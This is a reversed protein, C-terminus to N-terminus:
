SRPIGNAKIPRHVRVGQIEEQRRHAVPETRGQALRRRGLPLAPRGDGGATVGEDQRRGAGALGQGGEEGAEIGQPALPQIPRQRATHLHQVDRGQLGEVVVDVAVQLDGERADGGGGATQFLRQGVEFDAQSGAIRGGGLPLAEDAPRRVDEDGGRLGEVQQQGRPRAVGQAAHAPADHVLDVGKAGVLAADEQGKEQLAQFCKLLRPSGEHADAQRGRLPREVLDGAIEAAAGQIGAALEDRPRDRDDVGADALIEVQTDDAGDLMEAGQRLAGDPRRDVTQQAVLDAAMSGSEDEGVVAPGDLADRREEVLVLLDSAGVVAADGQLHPLLGLRGQFLAPKRCHHRRGRQLQADVHPRHVQDALDARRAVHRPGQLADAPGAVEDALGALAAEDRAHGAVKEFLGDQGALHGGAPDLLHSNGDVAEVHEGLM